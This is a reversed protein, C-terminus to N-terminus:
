KQSINRGTPQDLAALLSTLAAVDVPKVLHHDFGAERTRLRDAEQGWGTIAVVSAQTGWPRQRIQQCVEHGSMKPMGIDLLIIEPQVRDALALAEEGDYAVHVDHGLARLLTAMSDASDALDDAVLFRRSTGPRVLVPAPGPLPEERHSAGPLVVLFESGQGAGESRAEIRGGHLEVLGKVLALGIGLGGQAYGRNGQSFMDFIRELMEPAIGSGNDRVSVAFHDERQEATLTIKGGKRTFKAANNLLNAFVQALRLPDAQLVAPQTPLVVTLEHGGGDVLPRSTEVARQLVTRLDVWEQRLELKQYSIRSVDLLDELLRVMQQVQRDIVDLSWQADADQPAKEKFLQVAYRIPALPNRLEHALTALFEDKRRDAERLAQEARMRDTIDIAIGGVLNPHGVRGAISFKSVLSSRIEGGQMLEEVVQVGAPSAAALRDNEMFRDATAPPFLAADTRGLLTERSCGFARAAADNVYVYRGELDKIWALGPLSAMFRTFREESTRLAEEAQRAAAAHRSIRNATWWLLMFFLGMEVFTRIATGFDSDYLGAKQGLVRLWGLFLPIAIIPVLFQRAVEGGADQRRLLALLGHEPLAAILGIGLTAILAATQWSIGTYRAIGFLQDAGFWYGTLSLSAIAVPFVAVVSAASRARCGFTAMALAAGLLLFSTSAPLGMRMPSVSAGQGWTRSFLLEDIGLNWGFAHQTLTMLGMLASVASLFRIGFRRAPPLPSTLLLLAAGCLLGGIAANPFMSIGRGAWDTLRPVDFGWGALTLTGGALAACGAAWRVLTPIEPTASFARRPRMPQRYPITRKEELRGPECNKGFQGGARRELFTM